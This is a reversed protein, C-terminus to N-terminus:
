GLAELQDVVLRMRSGLSGKVLVADGSRITGAVIHALTASDGAHDGRHDPSITDYLFKMCPGCTYLLDASDCVDGALGAHEAEGHEGLERMDGLVALRRQAPQLKLVALAARVSAPSANYSEDLLLATGGLLKRRVGRGTVPSFEALAVAAIRLDAGLAAIATLAALANFVMHMGPASIRFRLLEGAILATVDSGDADQTLGLVQDRGSLYATAGQPLARRLRDLRPNDAPLIAAGGQLLGSLITAKEDAIADMSGLHGIHAAEVSTIVAVDPGALRSLPAIEGAHNMGIEVIAFDADVPMRALTLPVGWHNNYSAQAAHTSGCASLAIRLMEKTTTKGVSGTVAIVSGEFRERAFGALATLGALTDGVVLLPADDPMNHQTHVLAGCAGKALAEPVHDHGDGSPTKLAVFLDGPRLSRTDISIGMAHFPRTMAGGVAHSLEDATFLVSM